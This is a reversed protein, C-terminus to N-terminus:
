QAATSIKLRLFGTASSPVTVRYTQHAPHSDDHLQPTQPLWPTSLTEAFQPVITLDPQNRAIRYTFTFIGESSALSTPLTADATTPNM